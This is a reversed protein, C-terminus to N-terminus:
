VVGVNGRARPSRCVCVTGVAAVTLMVFAVGLWRFVKNEKGWGMGLIEHPIRCFLCLGMSLGLALLKCCSQWLEPHM